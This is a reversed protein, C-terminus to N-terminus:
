LVQGVNLVLWNESQCDVLPLLDKFWGVMTRAGERCPDCSCTTKRDTVFNYFIINLRPILMSYSLHPRCLSESCYFTDMRGAQDPLYVDWFLSCDRLQLVFAICLIIFTDFTLFITM